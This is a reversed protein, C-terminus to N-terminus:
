EVFLMWDEALIDDINPDFRKGAGNEFYPQFATISREKRLFVYAGSDWVLRRVKKGIRMLYMMEEFALPQDEILQKLKQEDILM